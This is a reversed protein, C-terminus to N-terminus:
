GCVDCCVRSGIECEYVYENVYVVVYDLVERVNMCKSLWMCCWM